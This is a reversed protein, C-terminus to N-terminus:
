TTYNIFHRIGQSPEEQVLTRTSTTVTSSTKTMNLLTPNCNGTLPNIEWFYQIDRLISTVYHKKWQLQQFITVSNDLHRSSM